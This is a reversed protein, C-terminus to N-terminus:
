ARRHRSARCTCIYLTKTHGGVALLGVQQLAREVHEDQLNDREARDMAVGDRLAELLHGAGHELDLLTGKIGSQM